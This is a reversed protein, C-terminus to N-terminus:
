EVPKGNENLGLVLLEAQVSDKLVSPVSDFTRRGHIILAVYIAVMDVGGKALLFLVIRIM